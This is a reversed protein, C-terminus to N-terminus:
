NRPEYEKNKIEGRKKSKSSIIIKSFINNKLLWDAKVKEEKSLYGNSKAEVGIIEYGLVYEHNENQAETILNRFCIFDPFGTSTKRFRGQRAPILKNQKLDVNMMWKSVIWGKSEWFERTKAEFRRGSALNRKGQKRYDIM